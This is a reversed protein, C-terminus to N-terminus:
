NKYKWVYGGSSKYRQNKYGSAVEFISKAGTELKAKKASPWEKIFNGQKDYQLVPKEWTIPRSKLKESIKAKTEKSLKRVKRTCKGKRAESMNKKFEETHTYGSSGGDGGESRNVLVGGEDIQRRGLESILKVEIKGAQPRTLGSAIIVVNFGHKNVYNQWFDNRGAWANHARNGKGIGVYFVDKTIPNEHTYVYYENM